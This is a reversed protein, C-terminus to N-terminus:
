AITLTSPKRPAVRSTAKSSPGHLRRAHPGREAPQAAGREVGADGAGEEAEDLAAADGDCGAAGRRQPQEEELGAEAREASRHEADRQQTEGPQGGPWAPHALPEIVQAAGARAPEF